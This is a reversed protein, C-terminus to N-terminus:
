VRLDKASWTNPGHSTGPELAIRLDLDITPSLLHARHERRKHHYEAQREEAPQNVNHRRCTNRASRTRKRGRHTHATTQRIEIGNPPM